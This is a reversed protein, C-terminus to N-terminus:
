QSFKDNNSIVNNKESFYYNYTTLGVEGGGLVCGQMIKQDVEILM